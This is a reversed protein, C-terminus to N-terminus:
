EVLGQLLFLENSRKSLRRIATFPDEPGGCTGAHDGFVLQEMETNTMGIVTLIFKQNQQNFVSKLSSITADHM